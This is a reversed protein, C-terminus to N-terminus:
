VNIKVKNLYGVLKSIDAKNTCSLM